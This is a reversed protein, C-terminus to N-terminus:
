FTPDNDTPDATWLVPQEVRAAGQPLEYLLSNKKGKTHVFLKGRKDTGEKRESNRVILTRVRKNGEGTMDAVHQVLAGQLVPEGQEALYRVVEDLIERDTAKATSTASLDALALPSDYLTVERAKSIHFSFPNFIGRVKAGRSPDIVTTVDLGGEPNPKSELYILEDSDSRIDGTGEFVLNGDTDPYKNAHGLLIVTGGLNALKRCMVYTSKTGDKSMMSNFKKLTDIFIVRGTLDAGSDALQKLNALLQEISTGSNADPNLFDFGYKDATARMRKHDSAPSDADLYWVKLGKKALEPAVHGFMLTTKGGGSIAILTVVHQKIILNDYLFEEKGLKDCYEQSVIFREMSKIPDPPAQEQWDRQVQQQERAHDACRDTITPKLARAAAAFDGGHEYWCFVGFKDLPKMTPLPTSTTFCFLGQGNLTASLEAGGKGPRQWQERDGVSRLYRWGYRELLQHWDTEQNFRDGPRDGATVTGRASEQRDEQSEDFSKAIGHLLDREAASVVPIKDLDGHLVYPRPDLPHEPTSQKPIARSPALLFYGGEAKTEIYTNQRPGMALKTSAGVPESCRYILHAGDSCTEQWVDLRAKLDPRISELTDAFPKFLEPKDFDLCELNESVKGGVLAINGGDFFLRRAEDATMRQGQYPKWEQLSPRKTGPRIPIVSLRSALCALATATITSM